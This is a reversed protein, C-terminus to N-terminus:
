GLEFSTVGFIREMAVEPMGGAYMRATEFAPQLGREEALARAADNPEAVDLYFVRARSRGILGDLLAEADARSTAVLPGVKYDARCPRIVGFGALRGDRVLGLGMHRSMDVALAADRATM